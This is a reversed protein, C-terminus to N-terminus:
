LIDKKEDAEKRAELLADLYAQWPAGREAEPVLSLYRLAEDIESVDCTNEILTAVATDM